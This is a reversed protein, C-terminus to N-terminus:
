EQYQKNKKQENKINDSVAALNKLNTLEPLVFM